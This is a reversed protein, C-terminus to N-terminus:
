REKCIVKGKSLLREKPAANMMLREKKKFKSLIEAM